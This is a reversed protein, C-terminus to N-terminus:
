EHRAENHHYGGEVIRYVHGTGRPIKIALGLSVLKDLLFRVYSPNPTDLVDGMDRLSMQPFQASQAELLKKHTEEIDRMLINYLVFQETDIGM